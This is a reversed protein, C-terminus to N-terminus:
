FGVVTSPPILDESRDPLQDGRLLWVDNQFGPSKTWKVDVMRFGVAHIEGVFWSWDYYVAQTIDMDNVYLSNQHPALVPFMARNFFLGTLRCLGGHRLIRFIEKLYYSSDGQLLHTFVSHANVFTFHEHPVPFADYSRRTNDPAYNQSWVDHHLFEFGPALPQLNERCWAILSPSVDLGVYLEPLKDQMLVKRAHRGAGCGFDFIRSFIEELPAHLAISPPEFAWGGHPNDWDKDDTPGVVARMKVTPLPPVLRDM